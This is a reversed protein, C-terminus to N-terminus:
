AALATNSPVGYLEESVITHYKKIARILTEKEGVNFPQEIGNFLKHISNEFVQYRIVQYGTNQYHQEFFWDGEFYWFRCSAALPHGKGYFIEGGIRSELDILRQELPRPNLVLSSLIGKFGM